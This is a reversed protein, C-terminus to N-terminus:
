EDIADYEWTEEICDMAERLTLMTNDIQGADYRLLNARRCAKDYEEQVTDMDAEFNPMGEFVPHMYEFRALVDAAYHEKAEASAAEMSALEYATKLLAMAEVMKAHASNKLGVITM